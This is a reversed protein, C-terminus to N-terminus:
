NAGIFVYFISDYEIIEVVNGYRNKTLQVVEKFDLGQYELEDVLEELSNFLWCDSLDPNDDLHTWMDKFDNEGTPKWTQLLTYDKM